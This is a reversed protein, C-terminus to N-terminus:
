QPGIVPGNRNAQFAGMPHTQLGKRFVGDVRAQFRVRCLGNSALFLGGGRGISTASPVPPPGVDWRPKPGRRVHIPIDGREKWGMGLPSGVMGKGSFGSKGESVGGALTAACNYNGGWEAPFM